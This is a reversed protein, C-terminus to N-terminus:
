ISAPSSRLTNYINLNSINRLEAVSACARTLREADRLIFFTAADILSFNLRTFRKRVQAGAFLSM